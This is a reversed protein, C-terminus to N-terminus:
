MYTTIYQIHTNTHNHLTSKAKKESYIADNSTICVKINLMSNVEKTKYIIVDIIIIIILLNHM